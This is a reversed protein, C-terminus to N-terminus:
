GVLGDIGQGGRRLLYVVQGPAESIRIWSPPLCPLAQEKLQLGASGFHPPQKLDDKGSFRLGSPILSKGGNPTYQIWASPPCIAAAIEGQIPPIPSSLGSEVPCPAGYRPTSTVELFTGCFICRRDRDRVPCLPLPSFARYSRVAEITVDFAPYVGGPALGFLLAIDRM